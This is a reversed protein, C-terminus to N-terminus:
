SSFAQHSEERAASASLGDDQDFFAIARIEVSRRAPTDAPTMSDEFATHFCNQSAYAPHVDFSKFLLCEDKSMLPYYYWKHESSHRMSYIEGTRDPFLLEYKFMDKEKSVSNVDCVALPSQMVPAEDSISRWVNVFCYRRTMLEEVEDETMTRGRIHSNIGAKALLRLRAPASTETYDSHVRPVPAASGGEAANLNTNGTDRITHDFVLVRDAGLADKVLSRMEHYYSNVVEESDNFNKTATPWAKLEFGSANLTPQPSLVRANHVFVDQPSQEDIADGKDDQNIYRGVRFGPKPEAQYNLKVVHAPVSAPDTSASLAHTVDRHTYLWKFAPDRTEDVITTFQGEKEKQVWFDWIDKHVEQVEPLTLMHQYWKSITPFGAKPDRFIDGWQYVRPLMFEMFVCTPFWTIDAFTPREGALFPGGQARATEELWNLQKWLEALKSARTPRDMERGKRCHPTEYPALYMCGQTHSAGPQTSNPSSIYIDHVRTFLNVLARREPTDLEFSLGKETEVGYKEHVYQLIVNSEFLNQGESTVFAPVKKLPNAAAFAASQLDAYVVMKSDIREVLGCMQIYLRVRAANNSHVMDFFFPKSAFCRHQLQVDSLRARAPQHVCRVAGRLTLFM